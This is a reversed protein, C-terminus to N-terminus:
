FRAALYAKLAARARPTDAKRALARMERFVNADVLRRKGRKPDGFPSRHGLLDEIELKAGAKECAMDILGSALAADVSLVQGMMERLERRNLGRRAAILPILVRALPRYGAGWPIMFDSGRVAIAMDCCWALAAGGGRAAGSVVSIVQRPHRAIAEFLDVLLALHRYAGGAAAIEKLNLGSCFAPGMSRIVVVRRGAGAVAGTLQGLVALGLANRTRDDSLVITRVNPKGPGSADRIVM